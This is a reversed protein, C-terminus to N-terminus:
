ADSRIGVDEHTLVPVPALRKQLMRRLVPNFAGGGGLIVEFDHGGPVGGLMGYSAVMSEVTLATATAIIDHLDLGRQKGARMFRGAYARGFEERGASRPPQRHFFPHKLLDALWTEDVEGQAALRGDEDFEQAGGTLIRVCEDIVMNGPGSDFATVDDLTAGAPLFTLNAIGGVNHVIRNKTAHRLLYYDFYPVLPAGEGGAALDRYRFEGVTTIGTREAIVCPEGIQLTAREGPLHCVTQGHSGILDVEAAPWACEQLLRFVAAAFLEGLVFNLRTVEAVDGSECLNLIRQRMEHPFPVTVFHELRASLASGSGAIEVLAADIGDVSTGAMLGVIRHTPQRVYRTLWALM